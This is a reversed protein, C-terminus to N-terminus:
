GWRSRWRRRSSRGTAAELVAAPCERHMTPCKAATPESTTPRQNEPLLAPQLAAILQPLKGAPTPVWRLLSEADRRGRFALRHRRRVGIVDEEDQEDDVDEVEDIPLDQRDQDVRDLGLEARRVGLHTEEGPERERDEVGDGADRDRAPGVVAHAAVQDRDAERHPARHGRERARRLGVQVQRERADADADALRRAARGRVREDGVVERRLLAGGRDRDVVRADM